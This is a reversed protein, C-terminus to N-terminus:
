GGEFDHMLDHQAFELRKSDYKTRRENMCKLEVKMHKYIDERVKPLWKVRQNSVLRLEAVLDAGLNERCWDSWDFPHETYFMHCGRCLSVANKPHWRLWVSRRSMVHACDLTATEHRKNVGCAECCYNARERVLKSFVADHKRKKIKM